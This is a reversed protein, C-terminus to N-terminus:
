VAPCGSFRWIMPLQVMKETPWPNKLASFRPRFFTPEAFIRGVGIQGAPDAKAFPLALTVATGDSAMPNGYLDSSCILSTSATTVAAFLLALVPTLLLM